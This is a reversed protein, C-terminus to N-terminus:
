VQYWLLRRLGMLYIDQNWMLVHEDLPRVMRCDLSKPGVTTFDLVFLKRVVATNSCSARDVCKICLLAFIYIPLTQYIRPAKTRIGGVGQDWGSIIRNVVRSGDVLHLFSM